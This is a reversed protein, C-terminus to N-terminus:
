QAAVCITDEAAKPDDLTVQTYTSLEDPWDAQLRECLAESQDGDVKIIAEGGQVKFDLPSASPGSGSGCGAIAVAVLSLALFRKM